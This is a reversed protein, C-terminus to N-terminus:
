LNIWILYVKVPVGAGKREYQKEEFPEEILGEHYDVLQPLVDKVSM